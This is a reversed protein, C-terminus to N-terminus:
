PKVRKGARRPQVDALAQPTKRSNLANQNTSLPSRSSNRPRLFRLRPLSPPFEGSGNQLQSLNRAAKKLLPEFAMQFRAKAPQLGNARHDWRVVAPRGLFELHPHFGQLVPM